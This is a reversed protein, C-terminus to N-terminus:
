NLKSKYYQEQEMPEVGEAKCRELYPIWNDQIWAWSATFGRGPVHFLCPQRTGRRHRKNWKMMKKYSM